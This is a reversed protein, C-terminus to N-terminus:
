FQQRRALADCLDEAHDPEIGVTASVKWLSFREGAVSASEVIRQETASLQDFQLELMQQLTDPVGLDITRLPTTLTWTDKSKALFGRKVLEKVITVMFLANGGSHSYILAALGAPLSHSPFERALYDAIEHEELCELSIEECLQHVLLDQKLSKLPSK